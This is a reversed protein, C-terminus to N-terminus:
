QPAFQARDIDLPVSVNLVILPVRYVLAPDPVNAAFTEVCVTREDTHQPRQSLHDGKKTEARPDGYFRWFDAYITFPPHRNSPYLVSVEVLPLAHAAFAFLIDDCSTLRNRVTEVLDTATHGWTSALAAPWRPGVAARPLLQFNGVSMFLLPRRISSSAAHSAVDSASHGDPSIEVADHHTSSLRLPGHSDTFMTKSLYRKVNPGDAPTPLLLVRIRDETTVRAHPYQRAGVLTAFYASRPVHEDDDLILVHTAGARIPAAWVADDDLNVGVRDSLARDASQEFLTVQVGGERLREVTRSDATAERAVDSASHIVAVGVCAPVDLLEELRRRLLTSRNHTVISAVFLPLGGGDYWVGFLGRDGEVSVEVGEGGGGRARQMWFGEWLWADASKRVSPELGELLVLPRHARLLARAGELVARERFPTAVRLAVVALDAVRRGIAAEAEQLWMTDLQRSTFLEDGTQIPPPLAGPTHGPPAFTFMLEGQRWLAAPVHHVRESAEGSVAYDVLLAHVGAV